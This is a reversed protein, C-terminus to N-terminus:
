PLGAIKCAGQVSKGVHAGAELRNERSSIAVWGHKGYETLAM